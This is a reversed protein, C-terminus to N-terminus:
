RGPRGSGAAFPMPFGLDSVLALDIRITASEAAWADHDCVIVMENARLVAAVEAAETLEPLLRRLRRDGLVRALLHDERVYVRKAGSTSPPQGSTRGHRCRYCARDHLWHSDLARGCIGCVVVGALLYTRRAGDAPMPATHVAQVRVFQAETVLPPHVVERSIAWQASTARSRVEM